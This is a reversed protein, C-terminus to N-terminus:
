FIEAEFCYLEMQEEKWLGHRGPQVEDPTCPLLPGLISIEVSLEPLEGQTLPPFRPDNFAAARAMQTITKHLPRDGVIHGICGRLRGHQKLTVFAGFHQQMAESVPHPLHLSPDFHRAISLRVLERLYDKEATTLEVHFQM